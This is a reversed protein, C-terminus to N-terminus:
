KRIIIKKTFRKNLGLKNIWNYATVKSIDLTKAMGDPGGVIGNKIIYVYEVYQSILENITPLSSSKYQKSFHHFFTNGDIDNHEKIPLDTVATITKNQNYTSALLRMSNNTFRDSLLVYREIYNKLERVNGPWSYSMLFSIDDSSFEFKDIKYKNCYHQLFNEAIIVIDSDRNRLPPVDLTIVNLRYYLDERFTKNLIADQLNKNTASILRFESKIISTGGVKMFEKEQLVRLLKSQIRLSTDGIEDLFITGNDAIEFLGKKSSIAGTFAGKEHGYFESEFLDEPISTLNISVLKGKRGSLTHLQQAIYEKGVGSEGQILVSVNKSAIAKISRDLQHMKECEYFHKDKNIINISKNNCTEPLEQHTDQCLTTNSGYKLLIEYTSKPINLYPYRSKINLLEDIVHTADHLRNLKAMMKIYVIMTQARELPASITYALRLSDQIFKQADKNEWSDQHSIIQSLERNAIIQHLISPSNLAQKIEDIFSTDFPEQLGSIKYQALVKLMFPALIYGLFKRAVAHKMGTMYYLYSKEIDDKLYYYSQVRVIWLEAMTLNKATNSIQHSNIVNKLEADDGKLMYVFARFVFFIESSLEQTKNNKTYNIGNNLITLAIDYEGNIIASMASYTFSLRLYLNDPVNKVNSYYFVCNISKIFNGELYYVFSKFPNFYHELENEGSKEYEFVENKLVDIYKKNKINSNDAVCIYGISLNLLKIFKNNNHKYALGRAKLILQVTEKINWPFMHAISILNYSHTIFKTCFYINQSKTKIKIYLKSFIEYELRCEVYRKNLFSNNLLELSKEIFLIYQSNIYFFITQFIPKNENNEILFNNILKSTIKKTLCIENKYISIVNKQRLKELCSEFVDDPISLIDQLASKECPYGIYHLVIAIEKEELLYQKIEINMLNSMYNM